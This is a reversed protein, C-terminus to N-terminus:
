TSGTDEDGRKRLNEVNYLLTSMQNNQKRDFTVAIETGTADDIQQALSSRREFNVEAADTVINFTELRPTKPADSGNRLDSREDKTTDSTHINDEAVVLIDLDAGRESGSIISVSLANASLLIVTREFDAADAKPDSAMKFYWLRAMGDCACFYGKVEGNVEYPWLGSVAYKISKTGESAAETASARPGLELKQLLEYNRWDWVCLYDDGGGSVLIDSGLLCLRSVFQIHGLCFGEIVYSQPIGRSVRIHEDRDASLIYNCYRKTRDIGANPVSIRATKLDTLMSVHGLIPEYPFGAEAEDEARMAQNKSAKEAIRKQHELAQLNGKTHVTLNTAAPTSPKATRAKKRPPESPQDLGVPLAYVDGFKDGCLLATDGSTFALACPRKPM